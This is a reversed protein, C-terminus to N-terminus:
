PNPKRNKPHNPCDGHHRTKSGCLKCPKHEPWNFSRKPEKEDKNLWSRLKPRLLRPWLFIPTLVGLGFGTLFLELEFM